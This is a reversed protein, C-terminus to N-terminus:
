RGRRVALLIVGGALAAAMVAFGSISGLDTGTSTSPLSGVGAAASTGSVQTPMGGPLSSIVVSAVPASEGIARADASGVGFAALAFTAIACLSLVRTMTRRGYGSDAGQRVGPLELAFSAEPLALRGCIGVFRYYSTMPPLYREARGTGIPTSAPTRSHPRCYRTGVAFAANLYLSGGSM